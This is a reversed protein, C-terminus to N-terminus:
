EDDTPDALPDGASSDGAPEASSSEEDLKDFPALGESDDDDDDGSSDDGDDGLAGTASEDEEDEDRNTGFAIEEPSPEPRPQEPRDEDVPPSDNEPPATVEDTTETDGLDDAVLDTEPAPDPDAPDPAPSSDATTVSEDTPGFSDEPVQEPVSRDGEVTEPEGEPDTQDVATAPQPEPSPDTSEPPSSAEHADTAPPEEPEAPPTPSEPPRPTEPPESVAGSPVTTTRGHDKAAQEGPSPGTTATQGDASSDDAVSSVTSESDPVAQGDRPQGTAVGDAILKYVIGFLGSFLVFSGLLALVAGGALETKDPIGTIGNNLSTNANEIILGGLGLLGGGVLLIAFLYAFLRIGYKFSDVTRVATM